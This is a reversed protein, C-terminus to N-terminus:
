RSEYYSRYWWRGFQSAMNFHPHKFVRCLVRDNVEFKVEQLGKKKIDTKKYYKELPVDEGQMEVIKERNIELWNDVPRVNVPTADGVRKAGSRAAVVNAMHWEPDPDYAARAGPVNGIIM